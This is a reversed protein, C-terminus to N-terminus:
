PSKIPVKCCIESRTTPYIHPSPNRFARRAPLIHPSRKQEVSLLNPVISLESSRHHSIDIWHLHLHLNLTWCLSHKCSWGLWLSMVLTGSTCISNSNLFTPKQPSPFVATGSSFGRPASYLVLLEPCMPALRAGEGSRWGQEWFLKYLIWSLRFLLCKWIRMTSFFLFHVQHYKILEKNINASGYVNTM